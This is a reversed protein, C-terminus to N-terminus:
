RIELTCARTATFVLTGGGRFIPIACESTKRPMDVKVEPEKDPPPVPLFQGAEPADVGDPLPPFTATNLRLVESGSKIETPSVLALTLSRCDNPGDEPRAKVKFTVEQDVKLSMTRKQKDLVAGTVTLDALDFKPSMWGFVRDLYPAMGAKGGKVDNKESKADKRNAGLVVAVVALLIIIVVLVILVRTGM